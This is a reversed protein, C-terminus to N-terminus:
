CYRTVQYDEGHHTQLYHCQKDSGVIFAGVLLACLALVWILVGIRRGRRTLRVM